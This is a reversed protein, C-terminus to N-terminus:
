LRSIIGGKMVRDDPNYQPRPGDFPGGNGDINGIKDVLFLKWNAHEGSESAGSIQFARLLLQNKAGCGLCHPEILRAGPAYFINLCQRNEIANKIIALM